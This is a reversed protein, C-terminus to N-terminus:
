NVSGLLRCSIRMNFFLGVLGLWYYDLSSLPYKKRRVKITNNKASPGRGKRVIGVKNAITLKSIVLNACLHNGDFKAKAKLRIGVVFRAVQSTSLTM